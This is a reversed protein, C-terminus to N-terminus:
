VGFFRVLQEAVVDVELDCVYTNGRPLRVVEAAPLARSAPGLSDLLTDQPGAMMLVPCTILALQGEFDHDAM